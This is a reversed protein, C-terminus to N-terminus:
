VYCFREENALLHLYIQLSTFILEFKGILIGSVAGQGQPSSIGPWHAFSCSNYYGGIPGAGAEARVLCCQAECLKEEGSVLQLAAGCYLGSFSSTGTLPSM